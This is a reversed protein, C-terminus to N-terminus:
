NKGIIYHLFTYQEAFGSFYRSVKCTYGYVTKKDKLPLIRM